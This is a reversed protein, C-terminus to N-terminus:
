LHKIILLTISAGTIVGALWYGLSSAMQYVIRETKM